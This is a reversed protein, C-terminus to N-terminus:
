SATSNRDLQQGSAGPAGSSQWTATVISDLHELHELFSDLHQVTTALIIDLHELQVPFSDLHLGSATLTSELHQGSAGPAALISDM